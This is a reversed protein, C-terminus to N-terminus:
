KSSHESSVFTPISSLIVPHMLHFIFVSITFHVCIFGLKSGSFISVFKQGKQPISEESENWELEVGEFQLNRLSTFHIVGSEVGMRLM